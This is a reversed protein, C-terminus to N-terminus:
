HLASEAFPCVAPSALNSVELFAVRRSDTLLGYPNPVGLTPADPSSRGGAGISLVEVKM